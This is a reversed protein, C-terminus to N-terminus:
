SRHSNLSHERRVVGTSRVDACAPSDMDVLFNCKIKWTLPSVPYQKQQEQKDLGGCMDVDAEANGEPLREEHEATPVQTICYNDEPQKEEPEVPEIAYAKRKLLKLQLDAIIRNASELEKFVDLRAREKFGLDKELQVTQEELNVCQEDETGMMCQDHKAHWFYSCIFNILFFWIDFGVV